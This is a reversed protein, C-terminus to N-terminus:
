KKEQKEEVQPKINEIKSIIETIGPPFIYVSKESEEAGIIGKATEDGLVLSYPTLRGDVDVRVRIKPTSVFETIDTNDAIFDVVEINSLQSLLDKVQSSDLEKKENGSVLYFKDTNVPDRQIITIKQEREISVEKVRWVYFGLIKRERYLSAFLTNYFDKQIEVAFINPRDPKKAYIKGPQVKLLLNYKEGDSMTAEISIDPNELGYLNQPQTSDSVFESIKIGNISYLLDRVQSERAKVYTTNEPFKIYWDGGERKEFIYEKKKKTEEQKGNKVIVLKKVDPVVFDMPKKERFDQLNKDIVAELSASILVIKNEPDDERKAYISYGVKSKEGILIVINKEEENEKEDKVKLEVKFRPPLFGFEKLKEEDKVNKEIVREIEISSYRSAIPNVSFKDAEAWIPYIIDWKSNVRKLGIKEGNQKTIWIESIKSSDVNLIKKEQEEKQKKKEESPKIVFFYTGLIVLFAVLLIITQRFVKM